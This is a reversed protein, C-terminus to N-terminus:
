KYLNGAKDIEAQPIPLYIEDTSLSSSEMWPRLSKEQNYYNNVVDTAVGWRVLDFWRHGEMALELRREMRLAKRAYAQTWGDLPYEEVKYNVKTVDIDRPTYFKDISRKAKARVQNILLRASELNADGGIEILAEAKGFYFKPM